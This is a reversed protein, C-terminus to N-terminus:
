FLGAAFESRNAPSPAPVPAEVVSLTGTLGGVSVPFTGAATGVVSFEVRDSTGGALTIDKANNTLGDIKLIVKFTGAHGGGNTVTAAVTAKGGPRLERPSIELDRLTFVAPRPKLNPNRRLLLLVLVGVLAAVGIISAAIAVVFWNVPSSAPAAAADAVVLTGSLGEVNVAFSGAAARSVPFEVRESAGAALTVDRTGDVQGDVKLDVRYTGAAGGNNTVTVSVTGGDGPRLEKPSIELGTVAFAAPRKPAVVACPAFRGLPASVSHKLADVVSRGVVSWTETRREWTAIALENQSAGPPVLAPDYSLQITTMLDFTAGEPKIDYVNGVVYLDPPAPLQTTAMIGIQTLAQGNDLRVSTGRSVTISVQNDGSAATVSSLFVGDGSIMGALDTVGPGASTPTGGTGADSGPKLLKFGVTISHDCQINTFTYTDISGQQTDDVTVDAVQYGENAAIKFTQSSGYELLVRSSPTVSGNPGSTATVTYIIPSFGASITHNSTVGTFTFSTSVPQSKGDVVVFSVQYGRNPTLVFTQSGGAGVSVTGSPAITGQAGDDVQATILFSPSQALVPSSLVVLAGLSAVVGLLWSLGKVVTKRARMGRVGHSGIV